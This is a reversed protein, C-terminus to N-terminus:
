LKQTWASPLRVGLHRQFLKFEESICLGNMRSEDLQVCCFADFGIKFDMAKLINRCRKEDLENKRRFRNKLKNIIFYLAIFYVTDCQISLCKLQCTRNTKNNNLWPFKQCINDEAPINQCKNFGNRYKQNSKNKNQWTM